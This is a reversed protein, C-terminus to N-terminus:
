NWCFVKSFNSLPSFFFIVLYYRIVQPLGHLWLNDCHWTQMDNCMIAGGRVSHMSLSQLQQNMVYCGWSLVNCAVLANLSEWNLRPCGGLLFGRANSYLFNWTLPQRLLNDMTLPMKQVLIKKIVSWSTLIGNELVGKWTHKM